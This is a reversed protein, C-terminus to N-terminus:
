LLLLPWKHRSNDNISGPGVASKTLLVKPVRLCRFSPPAASSPPLHLTCLVRATSPQSNQSFCWEMLQIPAKIHKNGPSSSIGELERHLLLFFVVYLSHSCRRTKLCNQLWFYSYNNNFFIYIYLIDASINRPKFTQSVAPAQKLM